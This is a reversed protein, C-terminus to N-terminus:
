HLTHLRSMRWSNMLEVFLGGTRNAVPRIGQTRNLTELASTGSGTSVHLLQARCALISIIAFAARDNELPRTQLQGNADLHLM